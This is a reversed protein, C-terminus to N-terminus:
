MHLILMFSVCAAFLKSLTIPCVDPAREPQEIRGNILRGLPGTGKSCEVGFIDRATGFLLCGTIGFDSKREVGGTGYHWLTNM